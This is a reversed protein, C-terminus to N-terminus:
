EGSVGALQRIIRRLAQEVTFARVSRRKRCLGPFKRMEDNLAPVRVQIAVESM